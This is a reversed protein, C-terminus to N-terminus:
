VSAVDVCSGVSTYSNNVLKSTIRCRGARNSGSNAHDRNFVSITVHFFARILSFDLCKIILARIVCCAEIPSSACLDLIGTYRYISGHWYWHAARDVNSGVSLLKVSSFCSPFSTRLAVDRVPVLLPYIIIIQM